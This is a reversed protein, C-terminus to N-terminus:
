SHPRGLGTTSGSFCLIRVMLGQWTYTVLSKSSGTRVTLSRTCFALGRGILRMRTM